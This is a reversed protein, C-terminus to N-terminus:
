SDVDDLIRRCSSQRMVRIMKFIWIMRRILLALTLRATFAPRFHYCCPMSGPTAGCERVCPCPPCLPKPSIVAVWALPLANRISPLHCSIFDLHPSHLLKELSSTHYPLPMKISTMDVHCVHGNVAMVLILVVGQPSIIEISGCKDIAALCIEIEEIKLVHRWEHKNQLRMINWSESHYHIELEFKSQRRVYWRTMETNERWNRRLHRMWHRKLHEICARRIACQRFGHSRSVGRRLRLGSCKIAQCKM